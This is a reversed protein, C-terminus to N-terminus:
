FSIEGRPVPLQELPLLSKLGKEREGNDAYLDLYRIMHDTVKRAYNRTEHAGMEEIMMDFPLKGVLSLHESVRRPGGNYAAMALIVNGRYERRLAHLYWAAQRLAVGPDYLDDDWFVPGPFGMRETIRRGTRPLIQMLGLAHAHSRAREKYRSEQLMHAMLWWPSVDYARGAARALVAYAPPYAEVMQESTLKTFGHRWARRKAHSRQRKWNQGWLELIPELDRSAKEYRRRGLQRRLQGNVRKTFLARAFDVYGVRSLIRVRRLVRRLRPKLRSMWPGLRGFENVVQRAVQREPLANKLAFGHLGYYSLPARRRLSALQKDAENFKGRIGHCRAQWYQAKPGVLLNSHNVLTSFVTQADLCAGRRFHSWGLFWTWKEINSPKSQVFGEHKRVAEEYFGAEHLLRGVQYRANRARHGRTRKSVGAMIESAKRYRGLYGLAIGYRYEADLALKTDPGTRARDLWMASQEYDNRMRMRITGLRLEARQRVQSDTSKALRSFDPQALRYARLKFLNEARNVRLAESSVVAEAVKLKVRAQPSAPYDVLLTRLATGDGENALVAWAAARLSRDGASNALMKLRKQAGPISRRLTLAGEAWALAARQRRAKPIQETNMVRAAADVMEEIAGAAQAIKFALWRRVNVLERGSVGRVSVRADKINNLGLLARTRVVARSAQYGQKAPLTDLLRIATAFQGVRVEAAALAVTNDKALASLSLLVPLLGCVAAFSRSHSTWRVQGIRPNIVSV